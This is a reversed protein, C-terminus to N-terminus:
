SGVVGYIVFWLFLGIVFVGACTILMVSAGGFKPKSSLGEPRTNATQAKLEDQTKM